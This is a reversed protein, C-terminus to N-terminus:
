LKLEAGLSIRCEEEVAAHFDHLFDTGARWSAVTLSLDSANEEFLKSMEEDWTINEVIERARARATFRSRDFRRTDYEMLIRRLPAMPRGMTKPEAGVERAAAVVAERAAEALQRRSWANSPRGRKRPPPLSAHHGVEPAAAVVAERAAERVAKRAASCRSAHHGLNDTGGEDGDGTSM